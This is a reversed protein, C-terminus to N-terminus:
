IEVEKKIKKIKKAEGNKTDIELYIADVDCLGSEPIEHVQPTQTLFNKLINKKDVGLVSNKAGVMGVDTVYATKKPLIKFDDTGIHTHTGLVASVRGDLYIGMAIKESTAEAHFDVIIAALDENEYKKLIKDALKFPCDYQRKMFVRGVLNIVLVKKTSIEFLKEGKGPVGVEDPFNAPRILPSDPNEFIEYIEKKDFAHDGSTFFDVGASIMENLTKSTTGTGHALNEVNAITLDPSHKTKLEPLIKTIAKRGIKGCIDGFMLVKLNM